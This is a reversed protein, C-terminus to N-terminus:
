TTKNNEFKVWAYHPKRNKYEPMKMYNGYATTLIKDADNPGWFKTDEFKYEKLPFVSNYEIINLMIVFSYVYDDLISFISKITEYIYKPYLKCIKKILVSKQILGSRYKRVYFNMNEKIICKDVKSRKVKKLRYLDLNIGTYKYNNDDPYLTAYTKSNIDRLRSWAPWYIPDTKKNHVIIWDSLEEELYRIAKDYDEDFIFIDFDDDWPIFGGHRVAGLLTGFTIFYKIQHRELIKHVEKAMKILTSQVRIVDDKTYDTATPYDLNEM